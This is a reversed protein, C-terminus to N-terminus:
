WYEGERVNENEKEFMNKEKKRSISLKDCFNLIFVNGLAKLIISLTLFTM